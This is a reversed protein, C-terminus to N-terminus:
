QRSLRKFGSQLTAESDILFQGRTVVYDGQRLGAIIETWQHGEFGLKVEVAEFKEDDVQRIVRTSAEDYIVADAPVRLVKDGGGADVYAGAFAGPELVDPTVEVHFRLSSYFGARNHTVEVVRGPWNRGPMHAVGLRGRNGVKVGRAIRSYSRLDVEALAPATIQALRSGTSVTSTTDAMVWSVEGSFPAIIELYKSLPKDQDYGALVEDSVGMALLRKRLTLAQELQAAEMADLYRELTPYYAAVDVLMLVEDQEVWQGTKVVIEQVRGSVKSLVDQQQADSVKEVFGSAYVEESVAGYEVPELRVGLNNIMAASVFVGGTKDAAPNRLELNMGCVPCTGPKDDTIDPHMPCVYDPDTHLGAHELATPEAALVVNNFNIRGGDPMGVTLLILVSAFM